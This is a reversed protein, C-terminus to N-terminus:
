ATNALEIGGILARKAPNDRKESVGASSSRSLQLPTCARTYSSVIVSYFGGIMFPRAHELMLPPIDPALSSNTRFSPSSPRAQHVFIKFDIIDATAAFSRRYIERGEM